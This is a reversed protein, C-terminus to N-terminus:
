DISTGGKSIKLIETLKEVLHQGAFIFDNLGAQQWATSVEEAYKGAVDVVIDEPKQALFSPMVDETVSPSACVVVYHPAEKQLWEVAEQVTEFAPSWLADIGGTALFGAVFDARPKFDKLQGFTLLATKPQQLLAQQRLEEFPEALRADVQLGEWSADMTDALNAYINTGILSSKRLAVARRREARVSEFPSSAIFADYGGQEEIALFTSWAKEVLEDTITEIFYSGNAPDSVKNVHTEEQIVLQINRALRISSETPGTLVDHPWVTIIDAGGLVAAFAENGARLLNVNVDLKSYSRLSTSALIPVQKPESCHYASAFAVWLKRFARLKAIEMFFHTDIAYHVFFRDTLQEFSLSADQEMWAAARSLTLALETVIDAGQHHATWLDADYTRLQTYDAPITVGEGSFVGTVHSRNTSDILSFVRVFPDDKQVHLAVLPHQLLLAAIQELASENWELPTRGDYVIAGNGRELSNLLETVYQDGNSAFTHQAITWSATSRAFAGLQRGELDEKTYLPRLDIGEITKTILTDLSKGKLTKTAAEQWQEYSAVDFSTMKMTHITM